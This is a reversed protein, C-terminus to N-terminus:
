KLIYCLFAFIKKMTNILEVTRKRHRLRVQRRENFGKQYEEPVLPEHKPKTPEGKDDVAVLVTYMEAITKSTNVEPREVIVKLFVEVSASGV